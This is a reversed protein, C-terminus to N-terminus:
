LDLDIESDFALDLSSVDVDQDEEEGTEEVEEIGAEREADRERQRAMIEQAKEDHATLEAVTPEFLRTGIWVAATPENGAEEQRSRMDVHLMTAAARIEETTGVMEGWLTRDRAEGSYATYIEAAM